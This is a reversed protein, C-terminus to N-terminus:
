LLQGTDPLLTHSPSGFGGSATGVDSLFQEVYQKTTGWYRRHPDWTLVYTENGPLVAGGHYCLPSVLGTTQWTLDPALSPDYCSGTPNPVQLSSPLAPGPVLAAGYYNGGDKVVVAEAASAVALSAIFTSAILLILWRATFPYRRM